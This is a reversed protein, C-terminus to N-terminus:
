GQQRMVSQEAIQRLLGEIALLRGEMVSQFAAIGSELAVLRQETKAEHEALKKDLLVVLAKDVPPDGGEVAAIDATNYVRVLPHALIHDPRPGEFLALANKEDCDTCVVTEPATWYISM